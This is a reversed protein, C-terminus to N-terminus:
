LGHAAPRHVFGFSFGVFCAAVLFDYVDFKAEDPAVEQHSVKLVPWIQTVYPQGTYSFMVDDFFRFYTVYRLAALPPGVCQSFSLCVSVSIAINLM